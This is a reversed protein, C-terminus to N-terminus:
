DLSIGKVTLERVVPPFSGANRVGHLEFRLKSATRQDLAALLALGCMSIEDLLTWGKYAGLMVYKSVFHHTADGEPLLRSAARTPALCVNEHNNKKGITTQGKSSNM